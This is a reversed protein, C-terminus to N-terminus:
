EVVEYNGEITKAAYFQAREDDANVVRYFRSTTEIDILCRDIWFESVPVTEGGVSTQIREKERIKDGPAFEWENGTTESESM